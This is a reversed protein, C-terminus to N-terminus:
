IAAIRGPQPSTPQELMQSSTAHRRGRRLRRLPRHDLNPLAVGVVPWFVLTVTILTWDQLFLGGFVLGWGALWLGGALAATGGPDKSRRRLQVLATVLLALFSFMGVAGIENGIELYANESDLVNATAYRAGVATNTGLGRGQPSSVLESAAQRTNRIHGQTDADQSNFMNKFRGAVNSHGASPLILVAALVTVVVVRGRSPAQRSVGMVVALGIAALAALVVARTVTMMMAGVSFGAVVAGLLAGRRAGLRELGLGLPILLLFGLSAPNNLLSGARVFSSNGATGYWLVTGGSNVGLVDAKFSRYGLTEGIFRTFAGSNAAEWFAFGALVAAVFYVALRIRRIAEPGLEIRRVSFLIVLALVDIRWATLRVWFKVGGLVGGGALPLFLYLTAIGVVGVITWDLLDLRRRLGGTRFVAIVLSIAWFEKLYGLEKVVGAPAGLKYAYALVPLQLPVWVVLGLVAFQPHRSSVGIFLWFLILAVVLGTFIPGSSAAGFVAAVGIAAAVKGRSLRPVPLRLRQTEVGGFVSM